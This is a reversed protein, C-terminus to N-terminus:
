DGPQDHGGVIPHPSHSSPALVPRKSCMKEGGRPNLAVARLETVGCIEPAMNVTLWPIKLALWM